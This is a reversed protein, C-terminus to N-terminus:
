EFLKALNLRDVHTGGVERGARGLEVDSAIKERRLAAVADQQKVKRHEAYHSKDGKKEHLHNWGSAAGVDAHHM